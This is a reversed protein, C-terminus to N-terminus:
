AMWGAPLALNTYGGNLDRQYVSRCVSRSVYQKLSFIVTTNSSHTEIIQYGMSVILDRLGELDGDQWESKMARDLAFCIEIRWRYKQWGPLIQVYKFPSQLASNIGYTSLSQNRPVAAHQFWSLGQKILQTDRESLRISM